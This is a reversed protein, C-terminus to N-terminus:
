QYVKKLIQLQRNAVELGLLSGSVNSVMESRHAVHPLTRPAYTESVVGCRTSAPSGAWSRSM